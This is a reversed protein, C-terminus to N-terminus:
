PSVFPLNQCDDSEDVVDARIWADLTLRYWTFGDPADYQGIATVSAGSALSGIKVSNVTPESRLNAGEGSPPRTLQCSVTNEDSLVGISRLFGLAAEQPTDEFVVVAANLERLARNDLAQFIPRLLAAIEPNNRLIEGRFVPAPQYLPQANLPDDLFIIENVFLQGTTGYVMAVNAGNEAENIARIADGPQAQQNGPVPVTYKNNSPVNFSYQAEFASFADPRTFFENSGAIVVDNGANIFTALDSMTYINNEVAFDELVALGFTNNAPSPTLWTIDNFPGDFASLTAVALVPDFADQFNVENPFQEALFRIGTGTYEVYVDIESKILADRAARDPGTPITEIVRYDANELALYVIWSLIEGEPFSKGGVFIIDDEQSSASFPVAFFVASLLLIIIFMNLQKM